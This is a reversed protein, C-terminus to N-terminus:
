RRAGHDKRYASPTMGSERKFVFSFYETHQFGAREAIEALTLETGSLMEKARNLQVRVIEERPTRGLLAKLKGEFIRRSMPCHHLVDSVDIGECAHERIYRLARAVPADDVALVDTSQRTVVGLPPIRHIDPAVKGGNMMVALMAAAEWGARKTDLQISSLPPPSLSCILEDNDVGLVAVEEPVAIGVRRCADLVLQGRRDFCSFVAVPKPLNRLWKGVHESEAEGSQISVPATYIDCEYGSGRLFLSFSEGRAVSWAFRADGCFAFNRFGRETFHQVAMRAVAPNDTTITPARPVLRPASVDVIPIRTKKLVAAISSNEIRAIIGDGKWRTIWDPPEDGRGQEGLYVSWPGNGVVYDEIGALLGRAYGNSTEILLAVKPPNSRSRPRATATPSKM